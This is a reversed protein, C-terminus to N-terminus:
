EARQAENRLAQRNQLLLQVIISSLVQPFLELDRLGLIYFAYPDALETKRLSSIMDVSFPSLWCEKSSYM